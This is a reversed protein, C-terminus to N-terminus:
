QGKKKDPLHVTMQPFPIEIQHKNFENYIRVRIEEGTVWADKYQEVFGIAMFDLSSAGFNIFFVKPEPEALIKEHNRFVDLIISKVKEIDSGYAVGVDIKVRTKPEPYSLNIIVNKMIDHNPFVYLNNEFDLIKTSRLGIEFVDGTIGSTLKIRDGIRFPKDLMIVFGAIMNALTEQAALAIALSGVGLSVVLAKIDIGWHSMLMMVATAIILLQLIRNALPGFDKKLDTLSKTSVKELYWNILETGLRILLHVIFVTFLVLLIEVLYSFVKEPLYEKLHTVLFYVSGVIIFRFLFKDLLIFVIDDWKNQTSEIVSKLKRRILFNLLIYTLTFLVLILAGSLIQKMFESKIFEM